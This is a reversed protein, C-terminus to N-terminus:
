SSRRPNGVALKKAVEESLNYSEEENPFVGNKVDSSWRSLATAMQDFGDM